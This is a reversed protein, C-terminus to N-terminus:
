LIGIRMISCFCFLIHYREGLFVTTNFFYTQVDHSLGSVTFLVFCLPLSFFFIFILNPIPTKHKDPSTIQRSNWQDENHDVKVGKERKREM